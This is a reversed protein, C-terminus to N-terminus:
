FALFRVILATVSGVALVAGGVTLAGYPIDPAWGEITFEDPAEPAYRVTVPAGVGFAADNGCSHEYEYTRGDETTWAVVPYYFTRKAGDSRRQRAANRVIWGDATVGTRRLRRTRRLGDVGFRVLFVGLFPALAILLWNSDM